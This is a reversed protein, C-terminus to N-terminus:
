YIHCSLAIVTGTDQSFTLALEIADKIGDKRERGPLPCRNQWKDVLNIDIDYNTRDARQSGYERVVLVLRQGLLATTYRPVAASCGDDWTLLRETQGM